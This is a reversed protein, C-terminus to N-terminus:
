LILKERGEAAIAEIPILNVLALQNLLVEALQAINRDGFFQELPIQVQLDAEIKNKLLIAMLSDILLAFSQDRDLKVSIQLLTSVCNLLYTELMQQREEPYAALIEGRSFNSITTSSNIIKAQDVKEDALTVSIPPAPATGLGVDGWRMVTAAATAAAGNTYVLVLDNERIKGTQAAHYL